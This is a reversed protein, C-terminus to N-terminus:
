TWSRLARLYPTKKRQHTAMRTLIDDLISVAEVVYPGKNLMVCEAREGMAADSIEARSPTGKKVFRELVQTAWVVPVSAAEAIWLIEEQIEALREYGIEVALDGRAIMVAVPRRAGATVILDPLHSVARATEIKLVVPLNRNAPKRAALAEELAEIDQVDQVFSFNVADANKVVFDLDELDKPTLSAIRLDSDPANISKEPSLRGGKPRTHQVRLVFGEDVRRDVRCAITGDDVFVRHGVALGSVLEPLSCEVQIPYPAAPDPASGRLLFTDGERVRVGEPCQVGAVRVKPGALDMMVRCTRRLDSAIRRANRIMGTWVEPNDHACNIRVCDMGHQVLHRMLAVDTAAETPLTVMIRVQRHGRARGFIQRANRRLRMDGSFFSRVGPHKPVDRGGIGSLAALSAVIADLTPEVRSEARGLSSLGWPMLAAQVLRLDRRRLALYLALNLAAPELSRRRIRPRWRDYRAHGQSLVEERLQSLAAFLRPPPSSAMVRVNM